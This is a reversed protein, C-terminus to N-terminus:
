LRIALGARAQIQYWGSSAFQVQCGPGCSVALAADNVTAYGLVHFKFALRKSLPAEFGGGISGSLGVTHEVPGVDSGYFTLGVACSVFGRVTGTGPQYAGGVQLYDVNMDFHSRGFIAADADFRLTQRDWSAELRADPHLWVDLGLGFSLSAPAEAPAVAPQDAHLTAGGRGGVLPILEFRSDTSSPEAALAAGATLLVIPILLRWRLM